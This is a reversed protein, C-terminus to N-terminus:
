ADGEKTSLTKLQRRARLHAKAETTPAFERPHLLVTGHPVKVYFMLFTEDGDRPASIIIRTITGVEGVRVCGHKQHDHVLSTVRDGVNYPTTLPRTMRGEPGLTTAM